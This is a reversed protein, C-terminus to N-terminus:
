QDSEDFDIASVDVMETKRSRKRLLGTIRVSAVKSESRAKAYHTAAKDFAVKDLKVIVTKTADDIESLVRIEGGSAPNSSHCGTIEGQIGAEDESTKSLTEYYEKIFTFDNEDFIIQETQDNDIIEITIIQANSKKLDLMRLSDLFQKSIGNKALSDYQSKGPITDETSSEKVSKIAGSMTKIVLDSNIDGSTMNPTRFNAIYSSAETQDDYLYSAVTSPDKANLRRIDLVPSMASHASALFAKQVGKRMEISDDLRIKHSPTDAKVRISFVNSNVIDSLMKSDDKEEILALSIVTQRLRDTYSPLTEDVMLEVLHNNQNRYGDLLGQRGFDEVKEWKNQKLYRSIDSHSVNKIDLATM